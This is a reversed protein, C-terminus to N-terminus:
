VHGALVERRSGTTAARMEQHISSNHVATDIRGLQICFFRKHHNWIVQLIYETFYNLQLNHTYHPMCTWSTKSKLPKQFLVRSITKTFYWIM